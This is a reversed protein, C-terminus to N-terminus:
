VLYSGSRPTSILPGFLESLTQFPQIIHFTIPWVIYLCLSFRVDEPATTDTEDRAYMWADFSMGM